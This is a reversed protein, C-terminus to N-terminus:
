SGPRRGARQLHALDETVSIPEAITTHLRLRDLFKRARPVVNWHVRLYPPTNLTVPYDRFLLSANQLREAELADALPATDGRLELEVYRLFQTQTTNRRSPDPTTLRERVLRASAIEAYSLVVVTPADAPLQFNLYSRYQVKIGTENALVLWNSRRFRATVFRLSLLPFLLLFPGFIYGPKWTGAFAAYLMAGAGGLMALWVALARVRAHRYVRDTPSVPVQSLRLLQV